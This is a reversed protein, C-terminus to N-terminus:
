STISVVHAQIKGEVAGRGFQEAVAETAADVAEGLRAPNRENLENRLPTGLCYATAVVRASEARSMAPITEIRARAGFGAAALDREITSTDHYGHPIRAMFRPPNDPFVGALADTVADAFVNHGIHDWVNFLFIGGPRLVRRTEAFAKPKDPFFMAGFQCIVTDFTGDAFPLQMADAQRWEVPRTTGRAGAQEIMSQNLDSATIAASAPLSEALRRTVVGTGAALELVKLPTRSALRGAIDVAYWDFILPVLYTDYVQAMSDSFLRDPSTV